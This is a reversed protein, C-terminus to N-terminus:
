ATDATSCVSADLETLILYHGVSVVGNDTVPAINSSDAGENNYQGWRTVNGASHSNLVVRVKVASTVNPNFMGGVNMSNGHMTSTNYQGMSSASLGYYTSGGDTSWQLRVYTSRWANGHDTAVHYECRIYNGASAPTLTASGDFPAAMVTDSTGNDYITSLKRFQKVQLVGGGGFGTATGSNVITASAPITIVDSADGLQLNVGTAPSLKNAKIESM